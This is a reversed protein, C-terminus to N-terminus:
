CPASEPAVRARDAAEAEDLREVEAVLLAMAVVLNRRRHKPKFAEDGWPWLTAIARDARMKVGTSGELQAVAYCAAASALEGDKHLSDHAPTYGEQAVQRGREQLVETLVRAAATGELWRAMADPEPVMIVRTLMYKRDEPRLTLWGAGVATQVLGHASSRPIDLGVAIETFTLAGDRMLLKLLDLMRGGSKVPAGM